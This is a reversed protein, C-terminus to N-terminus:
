EAGRRHHLLRQHMAISGGGAWTLTFIGLDEWRRVTAGQEGNLVLPNMVWLGQGAGKALGRRRTLGGQGRDGGRESRLRNM